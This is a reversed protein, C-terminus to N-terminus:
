HKFARVWELFLILCTLEFCLIFPSLAIPCKIMLQTLMPFLEPHLVTLMGFIINVLADLFLVFLRYRISM